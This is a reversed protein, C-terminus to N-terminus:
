VAYDFMDSGPLLLQFERLFQPPNAPSYPALGGRPFARELWVIHCRENMPQGPADLPFYDAVEGRPAPQGFGRWLLNVEHDIRGSEDFVPFHLAQKRIAGDENFSHQPDKGFRVYSNALLAQHISGAIMIGSKLNPDALVPEGSM